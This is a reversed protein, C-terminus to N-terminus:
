IFIWVARARRASAIRKGDPSWVPFIDDAADDTFRQQVGRGMDLLWIDANGGASVRRRWRRGDSSLSRCGAPSALDDSDGLPGMEKGSRNITVYRRQEDPPGTRYVISGTASASLAASPGRLTVNEAVPLPTDRLVLGSQTSNRLM